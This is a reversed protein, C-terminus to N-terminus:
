AHRTWGKEILYGAVEECVTRFGLDDGPGDWLDDTLARVLTVRDEVSVPDLLLIGRPVNPAVKIYGHRQLIRLQESATSSSSIGVAATLERLSPPYGRERVSDRITDLIRSQRETLKPRDAM